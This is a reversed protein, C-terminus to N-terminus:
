QSAVNMYCFSQPAAKIGYDCLDKPVEYQIIHNLKYAVAQNKGAYYMDFFDKKIGSKKETIRWITQPDDVLIDVVEAEGVVKMVPSTSYIVIKDVKKKCQTKRFEYVKDGSMIREVHQPNISLLIVCM